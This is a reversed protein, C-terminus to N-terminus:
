KTVEVLIMESRTLANKDWKQTKMKAAPIRSGIPFITMKIKPVKFGAQQLLYGLFYPNFPVSHFEGAHIQNGYIVEMLDLYKVMNIEGPEKGSFTNVWEAALADFNTTILTLKGGKKLVRFMENFAKQIKRFSIHEIADITEIYDAYEDKFPLKCMDGKIFIGGEEVVADKIKLKELKRIQDLTVYKDVNIFDKRVMIGCGINIQIKKM